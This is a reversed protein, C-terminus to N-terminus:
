GVKKQTSDINQGLETRTPPTAHSTYIRDWVKGSVAEEVLTIYEVLPLPQNDHLQIM